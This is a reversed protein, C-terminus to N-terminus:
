EEPEEGDMTFPVKDKKGKKPAKEKKEKKGKKGKKGGGTPSLPSLTGSPSAFASTSASPTELESETPSSRPPPSVADIDDAETGASVLTLPAPSKDRSKGQSSSLELDPEAAMSNAHTATDEQPYEIDAATVSDDHTPGSDDKAESLDEENTPVPVSDKDAEHAAEDAIDEHVARLPEETIDPGDVTTDVKEDSLPEDDMMDDRVPPAAEEAEAGHGSALHSAGMETESKEEVEVPLSSDAIPEELNEVRPTAYSSWGGPLHPRFSQERDVFPRTPNELPTVDPDSSSVFAEHGHADSTSTGWDPARPVDHGQEGDKLAENHISQSDDFLGPEADVPDEASPEHLSELVSVENGQENENGVESHISQEDNVLDGEIQASDEALPEDIDLDEHPEAANKTEFVQHAEEIESEVATPVPVDETNSKGTTEQESSSFYSDAEKEPEINLPTPAHERSPSSEEPVPSLHRYGGEESDSADAPSSKKFWAGESISTGVNTSARHEKIQDIGRENLHVGRTLTDLKAGADQIHEDLGEVTVTLRKLETTCGEVASSVATTNISHLNGSLITVCDTLQTGTADIEAKLEDSLTTVSTTVTTHNIEIQSAISTVTDKTTELSASSTEILTRVAKVEGLIETSKINDESSVLAAGSEGGLASAGFSTILAAHSSKMEDQLDKVLAGYADVGTKSAETVLRLESLSSLISEDAQGDRITELLTTHSSLLDHNSIITHQNEKLIDLVDAAAALEELKALSQNQVELTNIISTLHLELAPADSSSPGEPPLDRTAASKLEALVAAHTTHSQNAMLTGEKIEDLTTAHLTGSENLAITSAKIEELLASQTSTLGSLGATSEKVEVLTGAQSAHLEHSAAISNEITDLTAQHEQLSTIISGIQTELASSGASEAVPLHTSQTSELQELASAHSLHHNNSDITGNKISDLTTAHATHFENSTDTASKIDALTALQQDLSSIVNGIQAELSETNINSAPTVEASKNRIEELSSAHASHSENSAYVANTIDTLISRQEELSTALAALQAGSVASGHEAASTPPTSNLNSKLEELGASHSAHADMSSHLASLIEDSVDAERLEALLTTHGSQVQGVDHLATLIEASVDDKLENLLETQKDLKDIVTSIETQLDTLNNGDTEVPVMERSTSVNASKIDELSGSHADMMAHLAAIKEGLDVFNSDYSVPSPVDHVTSALENISRVHSADNDNLKQVGALIEAGQAELVAFSANHDPASSPIDTASAKIGALAESHSLHSQNSLQVAALIDASRDAGHSAEVVSLVEDIKSGIGNLSHSHSSQGIEINESLAALDSKLAQLAVLSEPEGSSTAMAPESGSRLSAEKIEGLVATHSAHLENSQRVAALLEASDSSMSPLKSLLGGHAEVSSSVFGVQSGLAAFNDKSSNANSDILTRLSELNSSLVELKNSIDTPGNLSKVDTSLEKLKTANTAELVHRDVVQQNLYQVNKGLGSGVAEMVEGIDTKLQDLQAQVVATTTISQESHSKLSELNDNTPALTAQLGGIGVVVEQIKKNNSDVANSLEALTAVTRKNNKELSLRFQEVDQPSSSDGSGRRRPTTPTGPSGPSRPTIEGGNRTNNTEIRLLINEVSKNTKRLLVEHSYVSEVLPQLTDLADKISPNIIRALNAAIANQFSESNIAADIASRFAEPDQTIFGNTTTPSTVESKSRKGELSARIRSTLPPRSNPSM